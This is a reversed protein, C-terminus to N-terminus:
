IHSLFFIITSEHHEVDVFAHTNLLQLHEDEELGEFRTTENKKTVKAIMLAVPNMRTVLSACALPSLVNENAKIRSKRGKGKGFKM